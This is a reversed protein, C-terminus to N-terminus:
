CLKIFGGPASCNTLLALDARQGNGEVRRKGRADQMMDKGLM